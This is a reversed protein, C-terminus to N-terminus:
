LLFLHAILARLRHRLTPHDIAPQGCLPCNGHRPKHFQDGDTAYADLAALM